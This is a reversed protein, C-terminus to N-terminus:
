NNFKYWSYYPSNQIETLAQISATDATETLFVKVTLVQILTFVMTLLM